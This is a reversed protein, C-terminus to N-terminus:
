PRGRLPDCHIVACSPCLDIVWGNVTVVPETALAGCQCATHMEAGPFTPRSASM